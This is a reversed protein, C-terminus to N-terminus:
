KYEERLDKPTQRRENLMIGDPGMWMTAFPLAEKRKLASDDEETHRYWVEKVWKDTAPCPPPKRVKLGHRERDQRGAPKRCLRIGRHTIKNM